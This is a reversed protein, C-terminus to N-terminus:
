ADPNEDGDSATSDPEPAPLDDSCIWRVNEVKVTKGTFASFRNSLVLYYSGPGPLPVDLTAAATRPASFVTAFRRNYQFNAFGDRDLVMVDTDHRGGDTTEIRGRLRCPREDSIEFGYYHYQRAAIKLEPLDVV